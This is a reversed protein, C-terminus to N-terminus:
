AAAVAPWRPLYRGGNVIKFFAELALFTPFEFLRAHGSAALLASYLLDHAAGLFDAAIIGAWTSGPLLILLAV